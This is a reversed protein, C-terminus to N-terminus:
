VKSKKHRAFVSICRAFLKEIDVRSFVSKQELLKIRCYREECTKTLTAKQDRFWQSIVSNIM